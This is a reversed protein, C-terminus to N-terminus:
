ERCVKEYAFQYADLIIVIPILIDKDNLLRHYFERLLEFINDIKFIGEEIYKKITKEGVTRIFDGLNM